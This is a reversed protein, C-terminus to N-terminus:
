CICMPGLTANRCNILVCPSTQVYRIQKINGYGCDLYMVSPKKNPFM